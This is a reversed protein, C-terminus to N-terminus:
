ATRTTGSEYVEEEVPLIKVPQDLGQPLSRSEASRFSGESLTIPITRDACLLRSYLAILKVESNEWALYRRFRMQGFCAMARRREDDILLEHTAISLNVCSDPEVYCAADLATRRNETLDYAVVPKGFALYEIIKNTTSRDSFENYPDPAIGVDATALYPWLEAEQTIRGTFTTWDDIHLEQAMQVMRQQEPGGGILTFSVDKPYEDAYHRIAHLLHDVGDQSGMEGLFVVLYKSGRKLEPRVADVESWARRPGSRIVTVKSADIGGRALATDRYSENVAIVEHATRLTLRELLLLGRYLLGEQPGGKALYLEPCLDHHDFVFKVGLPRFLLALAFYTDPPNCAHIAHFPRRLYVKLALWLAMLWCGIFEVFFGLAAKDADYLMSYRYIDVGELQEFSKTYMKKKPCIVSVGFGAKRLSVAEQWVRRDFPVPLNQVIILVHPEM